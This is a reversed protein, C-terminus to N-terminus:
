PNLLLRLDHVFDDANHGFPMLARLKGDRDILYIYSSHALAYGGSMPMKQSVTIGYNSRVAALQQPTGTGGVFSPDFASLFKRMRQATDREADVTVYIVQVQSAAAGLRKRAAALIALTVPCVETCSSYGFSLLVVKGRYGSLKLESGDSGLLSFDPAPRAPMFVGAILPSPDSAHAVTMLPLLSLFIAPLRRSPATSIV